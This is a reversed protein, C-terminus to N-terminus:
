HEIKKKKCNHGEETLNTSTSTSEWSFYHSRFPGCQRKLTRNISFNRIKILSEQWVKSSRILLFSTRPFQFDLQGLNSKCSVTSREGLQRQAVSIVVDVCCQLKFICTMIYSILFSSGFIPYLNTAQPVIKMM